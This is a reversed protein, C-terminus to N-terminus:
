GFWRDRRWRVVRVTLWTALAVIAVILLWIWIQQLLWVAVWLLTCSLLVTFALALFSKVPGNETPM